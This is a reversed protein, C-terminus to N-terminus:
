KEEGKVQCDTAKRPISVICKESHMETLNDNRNETNTEETVAEKKQMGFKYAYMEQGGSADFQEQKLKKALMMLDYEVQLM